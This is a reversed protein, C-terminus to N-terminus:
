LLVVLKELINKVVEMSSEKLNERKERSGLIYFSAGRNLGKLDKSCTEM